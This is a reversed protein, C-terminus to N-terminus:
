DEYFLDNIGNLVATLNKTEPAKLAGAQKVAKELLIKFMILDKKDLITSLADMTMDFNQEPTRTHPSRSPATPAAVTKLRQKAEIKM